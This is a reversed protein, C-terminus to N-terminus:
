IYDRAANSDNATSAICNYPLYNDSAEHKNLFQSRQTIRAAVAKGSALAAPIDVAVEDLERLVRDDDIDPGTHLGSICDQFRFLAGIAQHEHALHLQPSNGQFDIRRYRGPPITLTSGEPAAEIAAELSPHSESGIQIEATEGGLIKAKASEFQAETLAGADKLETLQKLQEVLNM